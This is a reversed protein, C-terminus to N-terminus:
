ATDEFDVERNLAADFSQSPPPSTVSVSVAGNSGRHHRAPPHHHDGNNDDDHQSVVFSPVTPTSPLGLSDDDGTTSPMRSGTEDGFM